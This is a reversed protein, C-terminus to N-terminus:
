FTFYFGFSPYFISKVNFTLRTNDTTTSSGTIQTSTSYDDFRILSTSLRASFTTNFHLDICFPCGIWFDGSYYKSYSSSTPSSGSSSPKFSLQYGAEPGLSVGFVDGRIVHFLLRCGLQISNQSTSTTVSPYGTNETTTSTESLGWGLFPVIELLEGTYIGVYPVFSLSNSSNTQTLGTAGSNTTSNSSLNYSMDLGVSIKGFAAISCALVFCGILRYM